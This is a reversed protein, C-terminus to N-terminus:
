LDLTWRWTIVVFTSANGVSISSMEDMGLSSVFFGLSTFGRSFRSLFMTLESGLIFDFAMSFDSLKNLFTWFDATVM